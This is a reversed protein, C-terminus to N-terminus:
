HQGNGTSCSDLMKNCRFNPISRSHYLCHVYEQFLLRRLNIKQECLGHFVSNRGFQDVRLKSCVLIKLGVYCGLIAVIASALSFGRYHASGIFNGMSLYCASVKDQDGGDLQKPPSFRWRFLFVVYSLYNTWFGPVSIVIGTMPFFMLVVGTTLVLVTAIGFFGWLSPCTIKLSWGKGCSFAYVM